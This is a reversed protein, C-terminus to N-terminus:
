EVSIKRIEQGEPLKKRLLLATEKLVPHQWDAAVDCLPFLVFARDQLRPHPLTLSETGIVEAHYSLLDLDIVRPANQESRVRGMEAEIHHLLALLELPPRTTEVRLVGNVYWPQDSIPVPATEYWSSVACIEIGESELRRVAEQCAAFPSGFKSPLNAGVALLIMTRGM